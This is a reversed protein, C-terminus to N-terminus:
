VCVMKHYRYLIYVLIINMRHSPLRIVNFGTIDQKVTFEESIKRRIDSAFDHLPEQYEDFDDLDSLMNPKPQDTPMAVHSKVGLTSYIFMIVILIYLCHINYGITPPYSPPQVHIIGHPMTHHLTPTALQRNWMQHEENSHAFTCFDGYICRRNAQIHMCMKFEMIQCSLLPRKRISHHTFDIQENSTGNEVQFLHKGGSIHDDLQRKSICTLNCIDCKYDGGMPVYSTHPITLPSLPQQISNPISSLWEHYEQKSHAFMCRQGYPCTGNAQMHKCLQYYHYPSTMSPAPRPEQRRETNWLELEVRYHAYTCEIGRPCEVRGSQLNKCMQFDIGSNIKPRPRIRVWRSGGTYSPATDTAIKIPAWGQRCVSCIKGINGDFLTKNESTLIPNSKHSSSMYCIKCVHRVDVNGAMETSVRM